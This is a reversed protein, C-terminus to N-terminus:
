FISDCFHKVYTEIAEVCEEMNILLKATPIGRLIPRTDEGMEFYWQRFAVVLDEMGMDHFMGIFLGFHTFLNPVNSEFLGDDSPVRSPLTPKVFNITVKPGETIEISWVKIQNYWNAGRASSMSTEDNWHIAYNADTEDRAPSTIFLYEFNRHSLM